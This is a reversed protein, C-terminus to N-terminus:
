GGYPMPQACRTKSCHWDPGMILPSLKRTTKFEFSDGNGMSIQETPLLLICRPRYHGGYCILKEEGPRAEGSKLKM